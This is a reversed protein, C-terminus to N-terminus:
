EFLELLLPSLAPSSSFVAPSSNDVRSLYSDVLSSVMGMWAARCWARPTAGGNAHM